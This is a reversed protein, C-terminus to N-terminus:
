SETHNSLKGHCGPSAKFKPVIHSYLDFKNRLLESRHLDKGFQLTQACASASPTKNNM